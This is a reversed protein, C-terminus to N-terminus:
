KTRWVKDVVKRLSAPVRKVYEVRSTAKLRASEAFAEQYLRKDAFRSYFEGSDIENKRESFYSFYRGITSTRVKTATRALVRTLERRLKDDFVRSMVHHGIEHAVVQTLLYNRLNPVIKMDSGAFLGKYGKQAIRYGGNLDSSTYEIGLKVYEDTLHVVGQYYYPSHRKMKDMEIYKLGELLHNPYANLAEKVAGHVDKPLAKIDPVNREHQRVNFKKGKKSTSVHQKVNTTAEEVDKEPPEYGNRYAWSQLLQQRTGTLRSIVYADGVQTGKTLVITDPVRVDVVAGDSIRTLNM